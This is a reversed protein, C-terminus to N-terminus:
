VPIPNARRVGMFTMISAFFMFFWSLEVQTMILQFDAPPPFGLGIRTASILLVAISAVLIAAGIIILLVGGSVFEAM